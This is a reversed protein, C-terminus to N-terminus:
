ALVQAGNKGQGYGAQEQGGADNAQQHNKGGINGEGGSKQQPGNEASGVRDGDNGEEFFEPRGGAQGHQHLPFAKKVVGGGDHQGFDHDADHQGASHSRGCYNM